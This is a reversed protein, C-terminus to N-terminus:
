VSSKSTVLKRVFLWFVVGSIAGCLGFQAIFKTQYIIGETTYSGNEIIVTKNVVSKTIGEPDSLLVWPSMSIAAGGVSLSTLSIMKKARLFLFLPMGLVVGLIISVVIAWAAIGSLAARLGGEWIIWVLAGLPPAAFFAAIPIKM